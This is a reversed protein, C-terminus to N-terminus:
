ASTTPSCPRRPTARARQPELDRDARALLPSTRRAAASDLSTRTWRARRRRATAEFADMGIALAIPLGSRRGCRIAVASGTGCRCSASPASHRVGRRAREVNASVAYCASTAASGTACSRATSCRKRRASPRPSWRDRRHADSRARGARAARRRRRRQLPFPRPLPRADAGAACRGGPASRPRLRRHRRQRHRHRRQGCRTSWRACARARRGAGAAHAARAVPADGVHRRAARHAARRPRRDANVTEGDFLARLREAADRGSRGTRVARRAGDRDYRQRAFNAYVPGVRLAFDSRARRTPPSWTRCRRTAVCPAGRQARLVARLPSPMWAALTLSGAGADLPQHADARQPPRRLGPDAQVQGGRGRRMAGYACIIVLDGPQACHAAAGNVSIM